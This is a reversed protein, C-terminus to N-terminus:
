AHVNRKSSRPLRTLFVLRRWNKTSEHLFQLRAFAIFVSSRFTKILADDYRTCILSANMEAQKRNVLSHSAFFESILNGDGSAKWERVRM